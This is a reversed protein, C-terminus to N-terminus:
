GRTTNSCGRVCYFHDYWHHIFDPCDEVCIEHCCDVGRSVAKVTWRLFHNHCGRVWVLIEEEQGSPANASPTSSVTVTGRAMPALTLGAPTVTAGAAEVRVARVVESCNTIRIQISASGGPCVHSTICGLDRPMWCPPPIDCGSSRKWTWPGCGCGSLSPLMMPSRNLMSTTERTLSQMLDMSLRLGQDFMRSFSASMDDLAKSNTRMWDNM